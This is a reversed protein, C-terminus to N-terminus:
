FFEQMGIMKVTLEYKKTLLCITHIDVLVHERSKKAMLCALPEHADKTNPNTVNMDIPPNGENTSSIFTLLILSFPANPLRSFKSLFSIVQYKGELLNELSLPQVPVVTDRCKDDAVCDGCHREQDQDGEEGSGDAVEHDAEMWTEHMVQEKHQAKVRTDGHDLAQHHGYGTDDGVEEHTNDDSSSNLDAEEKNM